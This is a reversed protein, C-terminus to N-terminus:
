EEESSNTPAANTSTQASAVNSAAATQASAANSAATTQTSAPTSKEYVGHGGKSVGKYYEFNEPTWFRLEGRRIREITNGKFYVKVQPNVSGADIANVKIDTITSPIVIKSLKPCNIFAHQEIIELGEPLEVIELETCNRFVNPNLTKIAGNFKISKLNSNKFAASEVEVIDAPVELTKVDTNYYMYAPIRHTGTLMQIPDKPNKLKYNVNLVKIIFEVIHSRYSMATGTMSELITDIRGRRLVGQNTPDSLVQMIVEYNLDKVNM